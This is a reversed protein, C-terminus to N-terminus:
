LARSSLMEFRDKIASWNVLLFGLVIFSFGLFAVADVQEDLIIWGFIAASVPVAYFVFNSELSGIRNLLLFYLFFGLAGPVLAIFILWGVADYTWPIAGASEGILLSAM